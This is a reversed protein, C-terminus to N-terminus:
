IFTAAQAQADHLAAATEVDAGLDIGARRLEGLLEGPTPDAGQDHAAIYGAVRLRMTVLETEVALLRRLLAPLATRSYHGLGETTRRGAVTDAHVEAADLAVTFSAVPSPRLLADLAALCEPEAPSLM